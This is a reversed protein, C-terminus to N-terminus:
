SHLPTSIIDICLISVPMRTNRVDDEDREESEYEEEPHDLHEDTHNVNNDLSHRPREPNVITLTIRRHFVRVYVPM